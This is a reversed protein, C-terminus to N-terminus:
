RSARKDADRLHNDERDRLYSSRFAVRTSCLQYDTRVGITRKPQMRQEPLTFPATGSLQCQIAEWDKARGEASM